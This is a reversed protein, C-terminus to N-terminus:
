WLLGTKGAPWPGSTRSRSLSRKAQAPNENRTERGLLHSLIDFLGEYTGLKSKLKDAALSMKELNHGAIEIDIATRSGGAAVDGFSM